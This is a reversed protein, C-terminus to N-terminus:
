KIRIPKKMMTLPFGMRGTPQVGFRPTMTSKGRETVYVGLDDELGM